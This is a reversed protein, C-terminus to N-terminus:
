FASSPVRYFFWLKVTKTSIRLSLLFRVVIQLVAAKVDLNSWFSYFIKGFYSCDFLFYYLDDKAGKFVFCPSEDARITWPVCASFGFNGM